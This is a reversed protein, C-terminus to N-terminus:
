DEVGVPRWESEMSDEHTDPSGNEDAYQWRRLDVAYLANDHEPCDFHIDERELVHEFTEAYTSWLYSPNWFSGSYFQDARGIERLPPMYRNSTLWVIPGDESRVLSVVEAADERACRAVYLTLWATM